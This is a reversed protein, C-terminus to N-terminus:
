RHIKIIFDGSEGFLYVNIGYRGHSKVFWVLNDSRETYYKGNKDRVLKLNNMIDPPVHKLHWSVMSDEISIYDDYSITPEPFGVAEPTNIITSTTESSFKGIIVTFVHKGANGYRFFFLDNEVVLNPSFIKEDQIGPIKDFYSAYGHEDIKGMRLLFFGWGCIGLTIGLSISFVIALNTIAEKLNTIKRGCFGFIVGLTIPSIITFVMIVIMIVMIM